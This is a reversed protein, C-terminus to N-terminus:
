AWDRYCNSQWRFIAPIFPFLGAGINSAVPFFEAQHSLHQHQSGNKV